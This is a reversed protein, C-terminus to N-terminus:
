KSDSDKVKSELEALEKKKAEIEAKLKRLLEAEHRRAYEDEHAREKKGFEKSQAVSGAGGTTYARLLAARGALTSSARRTALTLM